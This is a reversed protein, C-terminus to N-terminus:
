MFQALALSAFGKLKKSSLRRMTSPRRKELRAIAASTGIVVAIGGPQLLRALVVLTKEIYNYEPIEDCFWLILNHANAGKEEVDLASRLIIDESAYQVPDIGPRIKLRDSLGIDECGALDKGASELNFRTALLSLVNRSALEIKAPHLLEKVWLASLGIGPEYVFFSTGTGSCNEPKSVRGLQLTQRDVVNDSHGPRSVDWLVELNELTELALQTAYSPTDFEPLGWFGTAKIPAAHREGLVFTTQSRFYPTLDYTWSRSPDLSRYDQQVTRETQSSNKELVFVTHSPGRTKKILRMTSKMCWANAIDVLTNVIVFALRGSPRLLQAQCSKFFDTLVSAGAKAPVNSIVVDYGGAEGPPSQDALLGPRILVQPVSPTYTERGTRNKPAHETECNSNTGTFTSSSITSTGGSLNASVSTTFRLTGDLSFLSASIGNKKCNHFSFECALTDRDQLVFRANPLGAALSIGIVGTGCGADLVVSACNLVPDQAVEKLLLRTGADVDFSSFLAHSLDFELEKGKYRFAVTKNILPELEFM